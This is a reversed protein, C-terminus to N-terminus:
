QNNQIQTICQERARKINDTFSQPIRGANVEKMEERTSIATMTVAQCTCYQEMLKKDQSSTINQAIVNKSVCGPVSGRVFDLKESDTLPTSYVNVSILCFLLVIKRM